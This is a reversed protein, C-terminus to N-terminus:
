QGSQPNEVWNRNSVQDWTKNVITLYNYGRKSSFDDMLSIFTGITSRTTVEEFLSPNKKEFIGANYLQFIQAIAQPMQLVVEDAPTLPNNDEEIEKAVLHGVRNVQEMDPVSVGTRGCFDFLYISIDGIADREMEAIEEPTHRIGQRGKLVAHALEGLEEVMGLITNKTNDVGFNLVSWKNVEKAIQPLDKM